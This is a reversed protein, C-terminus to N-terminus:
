ERHAKNAWHIYSVSQRDTQRKVRTPRSHVRSIHKKVVLMHVFCLLKYFPPALWLRLSLGCGSTMAHVASCGCRLKKCCLHYGLELWRGHVGAALVLSDRKVREHTLKPCATVFLFADSLQSLVVARALGVVDHAQVFRPLLRCALENLPVRAISIRDVADFGTGLTARHVPVAQCGQGVRVDHRLLPHTPLVVVPPAPLALDPGPLAERVDLQLV